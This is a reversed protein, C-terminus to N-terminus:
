YQEPLNVLIHIKVQFGLLAPTQYYLSIVLPDLSKRLLTYKGINSCHASTSAM